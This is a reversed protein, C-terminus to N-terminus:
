SVLQIMQFNLMEFTEHRYVTPYWRPSKCPCDCAVPISFLHFHLRQNLTGFYRIICLTVITLSWFTNSNKIIEVELSFLFSTAIIEKDNRHMCLMQQMLRDFFICFACPYTPIAHM